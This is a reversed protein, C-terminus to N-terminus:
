GLKESARSFLLYELAGDKEHRNRHKARDMMREGQTGRVCTCLERFEEDM